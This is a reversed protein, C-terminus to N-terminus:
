NKSWKLYALKHIKFALSYVNATVQSGGRDSNYKRIVMFFPDITSTKHERAHVRLWSEM